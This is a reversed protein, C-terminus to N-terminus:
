RRVVDLVRVGRRLRGRAARPARARYLPRTTRAILAEAFRDVWAGLLQTEMHVGLAVTQPRDLAEAAVALLLGLHDLSLNGEVGTQHVDLAEMLQHTFAALQAALRERDGVLWASAYPAVGRPLLFLRAFETREDPLIEARFGGRLAPEVEEFVARVAPERLVAFMEEDPARTLLQALLRYLTARDASPIM